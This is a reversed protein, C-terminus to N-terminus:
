PHTIYLNMNTYDFTIAFPKFFEHTINALTHFGYADDFLLPGAVGRINHGVARGLSVRSAEIPFCKITGNFWEPHEYDPEIGVQEATRETTVIGLETGGTDLSVVEPGHGNVSGLACPIFPKTPLWLPLRQAHRASREFEHLQARTKRRLILAQDAYDMTTLFRHFLATGLAGSLQPMGPPTPQKQDSWLVPVNRMEMDGLRISDAVGLYLTTETGPIGGRMTSVVRLGAEEALETSLGFGAGTDLMFNRAQGNVSAEIVPLPDVAKFPLRTSAAGHLEFPTGTVAAYQEGYAARSTGRLLPAARSLQNQRAFCDALRIKTDTDAPALRLARSLYWEANQFRNSLLAIYGRQALAHANDPNRHLVRQYARDAAAFRGAKFLRDPDIEAAAKGATDLLPLAAAAGATLGARRLFGRRGLNENTM